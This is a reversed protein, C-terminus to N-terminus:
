AAARGADTFPVVELPGSTDYVHVAWNDWERYSPVAHMLEGAVARATALTDAFAGTDRGDGDFILDVGDHLSLLPDGNGSGGAGTRSGRGDREADLAVACHCKRQSTERREGARSQCAM